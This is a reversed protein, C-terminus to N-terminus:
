PSLIKAKKNRLSTEAKNMKGANNMDHIKEKSNSSIPTKSMKTKQKNSYVEKNSIKILNNNNEPNFNNNLNDKSIEDKYHKILNSDTLKKKIKPINNRENSNFTIFTKKQFIGKNKNNIQLYLNPSNPINRTKTNVIKNM